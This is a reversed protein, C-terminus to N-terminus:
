HYLPGLKDSIATYACQRTADSLGSHGIHQFVSFVVLCISEAHVPWFTSGESCRVSDGTHTRYSRACGIPWRLAAPRPQAHLHSRVPRQSSGYHRRTLFRVLILHVLSILVFRLRSLSLSPHSRESRRSLITLTQSSCSSSENM